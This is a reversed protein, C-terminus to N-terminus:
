PALGDPTDPWDETVDNVGTEQGAQRIERAWRRKLSETWKVGEKGSVREGIAKDVGNWALSVLSGFALGAAGVAAVSFEVPVAAIVGAVIGATALGLLTNVGFDVVTSTVFEPSRLGLRKKSGFGYAIVNQATSVLAGLGLTKPKLAGRVVGESLASKISEPYYGGGPKLDFGKLMELSDDALPGGTQLARDMEDLVAPPEKGLWLEWKSKMWRVARQALNPNRVSLAYRRPAWEKARLSTNGLAKRAKLLKKVLGPIKWREYWPTAPQNPGTTGPNHEVVPVGPPPVRQRVKDARAMKEYDAQKWKAIDVPPASIEGPDGVEADFARDVETPTGSGHEDGWGVAVITSSPVM